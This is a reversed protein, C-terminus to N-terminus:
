KLDNIIKLPLTFISESNVHIIQSKDICKYCYLWKHPIFLIQEQHLKIEMYKVDKLKKKSSDYM